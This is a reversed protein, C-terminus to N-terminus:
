QGGKRTNRLQATAEADLTRTAADVVVGYRIRAQEASLLENRVEDAVLDAAAAAPRRLAGGGSVSRVVSGSPLEVLEKSGWEHTTGDPYEVTM